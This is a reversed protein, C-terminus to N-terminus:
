NNNRGTRADTPVAFFSTSMPVVCIGLGVPLYRMLAAFKFTCCAGLVGAPNISFVGAGSGIYALTAFVVGAFSLGEAFTM